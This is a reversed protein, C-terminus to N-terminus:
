IAVDLKSAASSLTVIDLGTISYRNVSKFRRDVVTYESRSSSSSILM